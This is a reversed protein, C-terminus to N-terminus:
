KKRKRGPYGTLQHPVMPRRSTFSHAFRVERGSRQPLAQIVPMLRAPNYGEEQLEREMLERAREDSIQYLLPNRGSLAAHHALGLNHGYVSWGPFSRHAEALIVPHCVEPAGVWVALSAVDLFVLYPEVVPKEGECLLPHTADRPLFDLLQPGLLLVRSPSPYYLFFDNVDGNPWRVTVISEIDEEGEPSLSALLQAETLATPTAPEPEVELSRKCPHYAYYADQLDAQGRQSWEVQWGPWRQALDALLPRRLFPKVNIHNGGWFLAHRHDQDLLIGGDAWYWALLQDEIELDRIFKATSEPGTLMISPIACAEGNSYFLHAQGDEILVYNARSGM